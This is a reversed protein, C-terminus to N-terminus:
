YKLNGAHDLDFAEFVPESELRTGEGGEQVDGGLGAVLFAAPVNVDKYENKCMERM